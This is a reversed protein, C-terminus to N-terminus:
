VRQIEKTHIRWKTGYTGWFEALQSKGGPHSVEYTVTDGNEQIVIRDGAAPKQITGAFVYRVRDILFDRSRVNELLQGSEDIAFETKGLTTPVTLAEEGRLVTVLGSFDHTLVDGLLEATSRLIDM